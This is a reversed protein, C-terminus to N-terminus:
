PSTPALEKMWADLDTLKWAVKDTEGDADRFTISLLDEEREKGRHERTVEVGTIDSRRLELEEKPSWQVYLLKDGTMGLCGFTSLYSHDKSELGYCHAEGDILVVADGGLRERVEGSSQKRTKSVYLWLLLFGIVIVVVLVIAIIQLM